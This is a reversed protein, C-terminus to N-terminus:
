AYRMYLAALTFWEFALLLTWKLRQAYRRAPEKIDVRYKEKLTKKLEEQAQQTLKQAQRQIRTRLVSLIGDKTQAEIEEKVAQEIKEFGALFEILDPANYLLEAIVYPTVCFGAVGLSLTGHVFAWVGNRRTYHPLYRGALLLQMIFCNVPLLLIANGVAPLSRALLEHKLKLENFQKKEDHWALEQAKRAHYRAACHAGIGATAVYLLPEKFLTRLEASLVHQVSLLSLFLTRCLRM